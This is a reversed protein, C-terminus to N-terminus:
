PESESSYNEKNIKVFILARSFPFPVVVTMGLLQLQVNLLKSQEVMKAYNLARSFPFPVVVTMDLLQLQVNLLKSQEVMKVYNLARSFPFPKVVTMDLLQSLAIQKPRFQSHNLKERM